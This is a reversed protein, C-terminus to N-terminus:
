HLLNNLFELPAGAGGDSAVPGAAGPRPRPMPVNAATIQLMVQDAPRRRPLPIRGPLPQAAPGPDDASPGTESSASSPPPTNEAMPPSAAGPTPTSSPTATSPVAPWPAASQREANQQPAAPWPASSAAALKPSTRADAAMSGPLSAAVPDSPKTPPAALAASPAPPPTTAAVSVSATVEGGRQDKAPAPVERADTATARAEVTLPPTAPTAAPPQQSSARLEAVAKGPAQRMVTAAVQSVSPLQPMGVHAAVL